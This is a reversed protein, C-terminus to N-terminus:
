NWVAFLTVNASSMPFMGGPSYSTGSGDAMTNWGGFSYHPLHLHGTNYAVTVTQGSVYSNPDVPASGSKAGNGDYSVTYTPTAVPQWYAYLTVNTSGMVLVSGVTYTTGGGGPETNWGAFLSDSKTLAGSNDLVTVQAGSPYSNGDTPATGLTAGNGDYAVAYTATAVPSWLAYLTVSSSGMTFHAGPSFSREAAPDSWGVFTYGSLALNGSNGQVTVGDGQYYSESDVPATGSSAGNGDYLVEYTPVSDPLKDIAGPIGTLLSFGGCGALSLAALM